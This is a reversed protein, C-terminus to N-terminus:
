IKVREGRPLIVEEVAVFKGFKKVAKIFDCSEMDQILDFIDWSGKHCKTSFCKFRTTDNKQYLYFSPTKDKHFPCSSVHLRGKKMFKIGLNEAYSLTQTFFYPAKLEKLTSRNIM